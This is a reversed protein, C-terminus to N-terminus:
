LDFSASLIFQRPAVIRYSSATGDPDVAIPQLRGSENLNRVNLQFTAGIKDSFLRTRYSLFADFKFNAKDYIPRNPDYDTVIDPLSQVGRFGIAGKDEWRVAGGVNFRKLHKQETIGALRFSTSFNARYKRIQPLSKGALAQALKLPSKVFTDHYEKPSQNPVYRHTFWPVNLIPDIITEWAKERETIYENVEPSM